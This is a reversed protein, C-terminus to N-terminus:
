GANSAALSGAWPRTAGIYGSLYVPQVQVDTGTHPAAIMLGRGLYLTVHHITAPDHVDTAWFLLDGPQLDGLAPHPGTGWQEAATRPLTLGAHAYAWQTLGSCDFSTPGTGGWVYPDGLRTRAAAIAAAVTANPPTMSGNPDISGGAASVAASFAQQSADIAQQQAAAVLRRVTGRAAALEQRQRALAATVRDAATRAAVQLTTVAKAAATQQGALRHAAAVAATATLLQHHSYSLAAGALQLRDIADTPTAGTLMAALLSSQGGSEYLAQAQQALLNQAAAASAQVAEVRRDASIQASVAGALREEIGDYHQSALEAQTQLRTVDAALQAAQTRADSLPEASAAPVGAVLATSVAALAAILRFNM